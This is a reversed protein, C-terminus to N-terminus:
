LSYFNLVKFKIWIKLTREFKRLCEPYNYFGAACMNCLKGSYNILCNCKGTNDCTIASSGTSSCNCPQCSPYNFYGPLCRDCRPGGFGERCICQGSQKNCIEPETGQHDCDCDSTSFSM